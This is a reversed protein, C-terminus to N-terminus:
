PLVTRRRVAGREYVIEAEGKSLARELAEPTDVERGNVRLIRDGAALGARGARSLPQVALLPVGRGGLVWGPNGAPDESNSAAAAAPGLTLVMLRPRRGGAAATSRLAHVTANEGAGDIKQVRDGPELGARDAASGHHVEVVSGDDSTRFGWAAEPPLPRELAQGVAEVPLVALRAEGCQAVLGVLAGESSFIAAGRFAAHLPLNTILERYTNGRCVTSRQGAISGSTWLLGGEPNRAVLVVAKGSGATGRAPARGRATQVYRTVVAADNTTAVTGNADWAVGSSGAQAVWVVAGASALARQEMEDRPTKREFGAVSPATAAAPAADSPRLLAGLLLVLFAPIAALVARSRYSSHAAAM